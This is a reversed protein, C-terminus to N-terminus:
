FNIQLNKIIYGTSSTNNNKENIINQFFFYFIYFYFKIYIIYINKKLYKFLIYFRFSINVM